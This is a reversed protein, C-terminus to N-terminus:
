SLIVSKYYNNDNNGKGGYAKHKKSFYKRGSDFIPKKEKRKKAEFDLEISSDVVKNKM